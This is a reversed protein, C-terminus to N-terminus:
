VLLSLLGSLFMVQMAFGSAFTMDHTESVMNHFFFHLRHFWNLGRVHFVEYIGVLLDPLVGGIIGMTIALKADGLGLNFIFLVFLTTCIGDITVYAISTKVKRGSIYNKYLNTDGHPIIDSIFHSAMGLVLAAFPNGPLHQAILAGLVAHTTIFM